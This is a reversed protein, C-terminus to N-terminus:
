DSRTIFKIGIAKLAPWASITLFLGILLLIGLVGLANLRVFWFFARDARHLERRPTIVARRAPEFAGVWSRRLALPQEGANMSTSAQNQGKGNGANWSDHM